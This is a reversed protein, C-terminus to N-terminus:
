VAIKWDHEVLTREPYLAENLKNIRFLTFEDWHENLYVSRIDLMAQAGKITWRMGAREMRDKVFHKCAGEIVGSAIPYGQELYNHYQMREENKKLYNCIKKLQERKKKGLKRKSSMQKLGRIVGKVEGQLIRLVRDEIFALKDEQKQYFLGAAEWIRPTVHLLDLIEVRGEPLREAATWLSRQGDMIIVLPREGEPNRQANEAVLWDFLEETANIQVDKEVRTLSARVRKNMPKIRPPKDQSAPKDQFLSEIVSQATRLNPASSYVSGVVAMKKKDPKPGKAPKHNEIPKQFVQKVIPIGKGDATCVLIEHAEEPKLVPLNQRFAEVSQAGQYAMREISDIPQKLKLIRELVKDVQNFPNEVSLQQNWDQLVYSFRTEPLQLRNDLPVFEVKQGERSGYVVRELAYSGFISRYFRTQQNPLRKVIHKNSLAVEEGMDGDGQSAIFQGLAQNGIMLLKDWIGQEVKHIATGEKAEQHLYDALQEIQDFLINKNRHENLNTITKLSLSRLLTPKTMLYKVKDSPAKKDM